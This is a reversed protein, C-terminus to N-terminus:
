PIKVVLRRPQGGEYDNSGCLKRTKTFKYYSAADSSFGTSVNLDIGLIAATQVGGTFSHAKGWKGTFTTGADHILCKTASPISVPTTHTAGSAYGNPRASYQTSVLFGQSWCQSLYLGYKFKSYAFYRGSKIWKFGQEIGGSYSASGSARFSGKKGSSSAAVGLTSTAGESYTFRGEAGSTTYFEGVRVNALGLSRVYHTTCVARPKAAPSSASRSSVFPTLTVHPTDAVINTRSTPATGVFSFTSIRGRSESVVELNVLGNPSAAKKVADLADYRLAWRGDADTKARGVAVLPVKDGESLRALRENSPWAKLTVVTGAPVPTGDTQLARGTAVIGFPPTSREATVLAAAGGDEYTSPSYPLAGYGSVTMILVTALSLVARRSM